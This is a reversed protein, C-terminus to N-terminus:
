EARERREPLTKNAGNGAGTGAGNGAGTDAGTDALRRALVAALVILGAWVAFIYIMGEATSASEGPGPGWLLPVLFLLAGVVPLLRAADMLRRRRYSRRELFVPAPPRSM